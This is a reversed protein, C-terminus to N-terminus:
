LEASATSGTAWSASASTNNTSSVDAGTAPATGTYGTVTPVARKTVKFIWNATVTAGGIGASSVSGDLKEYYRQCLALEQGYSRREFPTAVAGGELQVNGITWTGSTQAGVQINIQIGTTAAAPVSINASYRSVSSNVTFTGTAFQTVAGFNDATTAYYAVWTVTTLLSNALDVSLTVTTGALDASNIQEIRQTFNISAISAAGTFQYRYQGATAGQVRQGTVNAGTCFAFWRDVTYTLTAATISQAAGANRQDVAMGGNIIRNRAGALQGGNLSSATVAGVVPGNWGNADYYGRETGATSIGLQNAAKGFVGTDTDGAIALAPAAATGASSALLAGTLTGGTLALLGLNTTDLLGLVIWANNAGNRQRLTAPSTSTDAWLMYAVTTSPASSGSQLTGLALLQNNLDARFGAGSQNAVNLDAQAM